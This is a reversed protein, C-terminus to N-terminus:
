GTAAPKRGSGCVSVPLMPPGFMNGTDVQHGRERLQRFVEQAPAGVVLLGDALTVPRIAVSISLVRHEDDYEVDVISEGPNVFRDEPVRRYEDYTHLHQHGGRFADRVEARPAGFAVSGVGEFPRLVWPRGSNTAM